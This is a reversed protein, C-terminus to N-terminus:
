VPVYLDRSFDACFVVYGYGLFVLFSEALLAFCVKYVAGVCSDAEVALFFVNEYCAFAAAFLFSVSVCFGGCSLCYISVGVYVM